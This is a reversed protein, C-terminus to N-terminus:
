IASCAHTKNIHLIFTGTWIFKLTKIKQFNHFGQIISVTGTISSICINSISLVLVTWLHNGEGSIAITTVHDETGLLLLRKVENYM